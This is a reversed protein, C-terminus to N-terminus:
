RARLRRKREEDDLLHKYQMTVGRVYFDVLQGGWHRLLRIAGISTNPKIHDDM